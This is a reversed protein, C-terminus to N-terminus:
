DITIDLDGVPVRFTDGANLTKSATLAGSWLCNGGSSADWLSAHTVTIAPMGEFDIAVSNSTAGGSSASLTISQRAYSGGTAESAGTEGPDATNLALYVTAPPTFAQARLMHDIIKDEYYNSISLPIRV